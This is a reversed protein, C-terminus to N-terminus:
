RSPSITAWKRLARAVDMTYSSHATYLFKTGRLPDTGSSALIRFALLHISERHRRTNMNIFAPMIHAGKFSLTLADGVFLHRGEVLWSTSGTTHGPTSVAYVSIGDVELSEGDAVLTAPRPLPNNYRIPMRREKQEALSTEEKGMYLKANPFVSLAGAHDFDSHTLFLHTVAAPDLRLRKLARRVVGPRYGSDIAILADGKRYLFLNVMGDHVIAVQSTVWQTLSPVFLM